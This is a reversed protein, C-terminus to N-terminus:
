KEKKMSAITMEMNLAIKYLAYGKMFNDHETNIHIIKLHKIKTEFGNATQNRVIDVLEKDPEPSDDTIGFRESKYFTVKGDYEEPVFSVMDDLVIKSNKEVKDLLGMQRFREFLPDKKLYDDFNDPNHPVVIDCAKLAELEVRKENAYKIAWILRKFGKYYRKKRGYGIYTM